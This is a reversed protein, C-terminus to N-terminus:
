SDMCFHNTPVDGEVPVDFDGVTLFYHQDVYHSYRTYKTQIAYNAIQVETKHLIMDSAQRSQEICLLYIFLYIDTPRKHNRKWRGKKDASRLDGLRYDAGQWFHPDMLQELRACFLRECIEDMRGMTKVPTSFNSIKTGSKWGWATANQLSRTEFLLVDSILVHHAYFQLHNISVNIVRFNWRDWGRNECPPSDFTHLIHTKFREPKSVFCCKSM